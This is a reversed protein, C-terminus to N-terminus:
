SGSLRVGRRCDLDMATVEHFCVGDMEQGTCEDKVLSSYNDRKPDGICIGRCRGCLITRFM